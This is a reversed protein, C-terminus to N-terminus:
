KRVVLGEQILREVLAIREEDHLDGPLDRIAYASNELAFELAERFLGLFDITRAGFNLRVIEENHRMRYVIGARPGVIHTAKLEAPRFFNTVQGSVDLPFKTVVEDKFREVVQGLFQEDAANKLASKLGRVLEDRNGSLFGLPLAHLLSEQEQVTAKIAAYLLDSWNFPLLGLTIHLSAESGCEAAHVFGRPIYVMDGQNLTFADCDGVFERSEDAMNEDKGPFKRRQKELRWNKSGLVQLIFVDHGDWHPTFGQGNPPTLYINTNFCHGLQGELLRCLLGLKPERLHLRDLVLTAGRHMETLTRELGPNTEVEIRISKKSKAEATKIYDPGTAIARDFDELTLLDDYFNADGRHAVMPKQEWYQTRFEEPTLPAILRDFSFRELFRCNASRNDQMGM